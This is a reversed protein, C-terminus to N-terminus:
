VQLLFCRFYSLSQKNISKL